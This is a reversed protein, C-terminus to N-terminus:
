GLILLVIMILSPIGYYLANKGLVEKDQRDEWTKYVSNEECYWEGNSKMKKM